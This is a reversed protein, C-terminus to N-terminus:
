ANAKAAKARLRKREERREIRQLQKAVCGREYSAKEKPHIRGRYNESM